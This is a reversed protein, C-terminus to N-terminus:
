PAGSPRESKHPPAPAKLIEALTRELDESLVRDAREARLAWVTAGAGALGMALLAILAVVILTAMALGLLTGM